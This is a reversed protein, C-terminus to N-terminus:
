YSIPLLPTLSIEDKPAFFVTLFFFFFFHLRRVFLNTYLARSTLLRWSTPSPTRKRFHYAVADEPVRASTERANEHIQGSHGIHCYDTQRRPSVRTYEHRRGTRSVNNNNNNNNNCCDRQEDHVGKRKRRRILRLKKGAALFPQRGSPSKRIRNGFGNERERRSRRPGIGRVAIIHSIDTECSIRVVFSDIRSPCTTVSM